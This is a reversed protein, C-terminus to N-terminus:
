DRPNTIVLGALIIYPAVFDCVEFGNNYDVIHIIDKNIDKQIQERLDLVGLLLGKSLNKTTRGDVNGYEKNLGDAFIQPIKDLEGSSYLEDFDKANCIVKINLLILKHSQYKYGKDIKNLELIQKFAEQILEKTNKDIQNKAKKSVYFRSAKTEIWVNFDKDKSRCWFDVARTKRENGSEDLIGCGDCNRTYESIHYPTIANIAAAISSYSKRESYVLPFENAGELMTLNIDFIHQCLEDFFPKFKRGKDLSDSKYHSDLLYYKYPSKSKGIYNLAM